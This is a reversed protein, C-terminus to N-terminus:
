QIDPIRNKNGKVGRAARGAYRSPLAVSGNSSCHSECRTFANSVTLTGGSAVIIVDGRMWFVQLLRKASCGSLDKTFNKRAPMEWPNRM